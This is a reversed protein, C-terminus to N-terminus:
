SANLYVSGIEKYKEQQMPENTRAEQVSSWLQLSLSQLGVIRESETLTKNLELRNFEPSFREYINKVKMLWESAEICLKKCNVTCNSGFASLIERKQKLTGTAFKHRAYAAFEFKKKTLEIFKEVSAEENQIEFSLRAIKEKLMKSERTFIDEDVLERYHMRILNSLEKETEGLAIKRSSNIQTHDNAAKEKEQDLIELAWQLFKEDIAYEGLQNEIQEELLSLTLPTQKAKNCPVVKKKRTCHYYIYKKQEGISKVTKVKESATYFSGCVSCTILGTYAFEHHKPRSNGKNGLLQQVKDYEALTIMPTHNGSYLTGGWEFMGTYFINNFMKYIASKSLEQGGGRKRKPTCLGWSMTLKHIEAPSYAGSLMLDWAKRVLNFREKDEVITREAKDNLYGIPSIAPCWGRNAKGVMGRKVNKRLDIIFQNAMGSEVSFLLVNDDPKYCKDFTQISQIIGQQLMWSITGSDVPNRSLRNIQWCLIGSAEGKEIRKLMEAFQPRSNPMKASKSETYVHVIELGIRKSLTTLVEIQDDLSQIQRDESEQSKRAYLFYKIKTHNDLLM